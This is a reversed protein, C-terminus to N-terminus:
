GEIDNEDMVKIEGVGIASSENNTNNSTNGNNLNGNGIMRKKSPSSSPNKDNASYNASSNMINTDGLPTTVNLDKLDGISSLSDSGNPRTKIKRDDDDDDDNDDFVVGSPTAIEDDLQVSPSQGWSMRKRRRKEGRAQARRNALTDLLPNETLENRLAKIWRICDIKTECRFIYESHGTLSLRGSKLRKASKISKEFPNSSRLAFTNDGEVNEVVICNELPIICRCNEKGNSKEPESKFYYLCHENLLFFRKSWKKTGRAARKSLWGECSPNFFTVIDTEWGTEIENDMINDFLMELTAKPVDDGKDIGSCMKIFQTKTMKNKKKVNPNHADTNLIIMAFALVYVTDQNAFIAAKMDENQQHYHCAFKEIIRDILQSEGPLRFYTLFERLASDLTKGIFNFKGVYEELVKKHFSTEEKGKGSRGLYLGIQRKSLGSQLESRGRFLRKSHLFEAISDPDKELLENKILYQIGDKPKINFKTIGKNFIVEEKSLEPTPSGRSNNNNNNNNPTYIATSSWSRPRLPEDISRKNNLKVCFQGM